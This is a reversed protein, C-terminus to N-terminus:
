APIMSSATRSLSRAPGPRTSSECDGRSHGLIEISVPRDAEITHTATTKIDSEVIVERYYTKSGYWTSTTWKNGDRTTEALTTRGSTYTYEVDNSSAIDAASVTFYDSGPVLTPQTLLESAVSRINGPDAALDDIGMWSSTGYTTTVRERQVSAVSWGYRWGERIAYNASFDFAGPYTNTITNAPNIVQMTSSYVPKGNADVKPGTNPAAKMDEVVVTISGDANTLYSTRVYGGDTRDQGVAQSGKSRDNLVVKGAGRQRSTSASSWSM